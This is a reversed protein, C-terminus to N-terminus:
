IEEEGEEELGCHGEEVGRRHAAHEVAEGRVQVRHVVAHGEHEVDQQGRGEVQQPHQHDDAVAEGPHQQQQQRQGDEVVARLGEVAVRGALELAQGAERQRGDVRVEGLRQRAQAGDPGAAARGPSGPAM